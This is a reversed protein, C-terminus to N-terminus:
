ALVVQDLGLVWSVLQTLDHRDHHVPSVVIVRNSPLKELLQESDKLEGGQASVGVVLVEVDELGSLLQSLFPLEADLWNKPSAGDLWDGPESEQLDWASVVVGLRLPATGQRRSLATQVLDFLMVDTDLFRQNFTSRPLSPEAPQDVDAGVEEPEQSTVDATPTATTEASVVNAAIGELGQPGGLDPAELPARVSHTVKKSHVFVLLGRSGRLIEDLAAPWKRDILYRRISEGALDPIVLDLRDSTSSAHLKFEPYAEYEPLTREIKATNRWHDAIRNLHKTDEAVASM